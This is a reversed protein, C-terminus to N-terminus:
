PKGEKRGQIRDVIERRKVEDKIKAALDLDRARDEEGRNRAPSSALFAILTDDNGASENYKLALESIEAFNGNSGRLARALAKGTAEDVVGPSQVAAWSRVKELSEVDLKDRGIDAMKRDFVEGVLKEREDPTVRATAIFEDVREFGDGHALFGAHNALVGAVESPSATERVLTVYAGEEKRDVQLFMGQRFFDDRPGDPIAKVRAMAAQLDSKLLAGVLGSEFRLYSPNKGDLSKSEFVGAALQRDMWAAAAASDKEAWKGLASACQWNFGENLIRDGAHALAMGPDKECLSNFILGDLQRRVREDMDIAALEDLQECLEETTLDMLLRQVRIMTRIDQPGEHVNAGFSSAVEKWNVKRPNVARAKEDDEHRRGDSASAARAIRIRERLIGIEHEM